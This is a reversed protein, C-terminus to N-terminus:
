GVGAANPRATPPSTHRYRVPFDNDRIRRPPLPLAVHSRFLDSEEPRFPLPRRQLRFPPVGALFRMAGFRLMASTRFRPGRWLLVSPGILGPRSSRLFPALPSGSRVSLRSPLPASLIRALNEGQHIWRFSMFSHCSRLFSTFGALPCVSSRMAPASVPRYPMMTTAAIRADPRQFIPETEAAPATM